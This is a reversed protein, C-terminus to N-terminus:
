RLFIRNDDPRIDIHFHNRHGDNYNPTLISNFRRSRALSCAIRLLTAARWDTPEPADCTRHAPTEVFHDNVSLRGRATHFGFIDLAMGLRHFSINPRTRHASLIEVRRVGERRVIRSLLPLRAAMECSIVIASGVSTPTYAVGGVPGTLRVPTPTPTTLPETYREHPVGAEHLAALCADESRIQFVARPSTEWVGGPIIARYNYFSPVMRAIRRAIDGNPDDRPASFRHPVPPAPPVPGPGLESPPTQQLVAPPLVFNPPAGVAVALERMREPTIGPPLQLRSARRGRAPSPEDDGDDGGHAETAALRWFRDFYGAALQRARGAILRPRSTTTRRDYVVYDPLFDPLNRTRGVAAATVGTHVLVYRTPALPNPHIFRAGVDDGAFREGSAMVVAGNEARLPLQRAIRDLVANDGPSGYLALHHSHMMADTVETDPVVRQNLYWVGTPWGNAGRNATQRLENVNAPNQTGYVHIIEDFYADSMPGALGPIKELGRARPLAGMRWTGNQRSVTVSRGLQSRPGEFVQTGDVEVRATEHSGLPCDELHFTLELVNDTEVRLVGREARADARALEPYREIRTVSVWHQRNARYDGTVIRVRPPRPNRVYGALDAYVRGHRHVLYLLDHGHEFWREQPSLGQRRMHETLERVYAPRMPGPDRTGHYYRFDTNTTNEILHLGSIRLMATREHDTPRGGTYQLWSPAGAIAQVHSFRWAHRTGLQYAGMGGNSLGGLVVRNPDVSYHRQVDAMVELVDQEGMWRWIPQGVGDPAVVIADPSWRPTYDDWLHLSYTEWDMNNGLVVGLFLNGLSSGGHLMIILPYARQPDYDPPVYIAYGQRAPSFSPDYGRNLIQGRGHEVYPDRGDEAARLFREARRLWSASQPAFRREIRQAIDILYEISLLAGEPVAAPRRARLREVRARLEEPSSQASVTSPDLALVALVLTLLPTPARSALRRLM